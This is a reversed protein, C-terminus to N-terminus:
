LHCILIINAAMIPLFRLNILKQNKRRQLRSVDVYATQMFEQKIQANTYKVHEVKKKGIDIYVCFIVFYFCM